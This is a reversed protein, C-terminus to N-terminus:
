YKYVAIAQLKADSIFILRKKQNIAIGNPQRLEQGYTLVYKGLPDFVKVKALQADVVHIRGQDNVGSPDFGGTKKALLAPSPMNDMAIGM